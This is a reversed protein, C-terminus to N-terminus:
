IFTKKYKITVDYSYTGTMTITYNNRWQELLPIMGTYDVELWNLTVTQDERNIQIIDSASLTEDITMEYNGVSVTMQDVSTASNITIIIIPKAKYRWLNIVEEQLTSTVWLTSVIQYRRSNWSENTITFRAEYNIFNINYHQRNFTIWSCYATAERVEGNVKVSLIQWPVSLVSKV